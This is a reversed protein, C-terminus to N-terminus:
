RLLIMKKVDAFRKNPDSTSVAELRYFYIGSAVAANWQKQYYGPGAEEDALTAIQQGLINFVTLRVHSSFPVGYRVTTSPNFPNPFNQDLSYTQPILEDTAVATLSSGRGFLPIKLVGDYSNDYVFITDRYEQISDPTFLVQLHLTDVYTLSVPYSASSVHFFTTHTLVSDVQLVNPSSNIIGFQVSDRLVEGFDIASRTCASKPLPSSVQFLDDYTSQMCNDNAKMISVSSLRDAGLGVVFGVVTEQTDGPAMRFPGSNLLIRRDGPVFSYDEGLGDLFGTGAAPDGSLPFKSEPFPGHNYPLDQDAMTGVPAFGRLMKWWQGTTGEYGATVGNPPDSYPSGASFYAFSSMGLNRYGPKYKLDFIATDSASVVAPGALFDYGPAPPALGYREFTADVPNGNYCFGLSLVSDCGTLDDSFSGLDIDSWQCVYMSDIHFSGLTGANDIQVGGKNILRYRYFFLNGLPEDRRYAWMTKQIELGLPESSVFGLTASENLDNYVTWIVQDAPSNPDAGAVGPEDYSGTILSDVTFSASFAPPAQYGPAGNREIYPAGLAVPWEAWDTAYQDYVQQMQPDTVYAADTENVDAADQRLDATYAGGADKLNRYDRRIRYIRVEVDSPQAPVASAGAGTIYGGRTGVGYTGGGVRVTHIYAPTGKGEFGGTFAKGGFVFGDKYIVSGTGRPFYAGNDSSPSFAGLGDYRAWVALNNINLVTYTPTGATKNLSQKEKKGDKNQPDNPAAQVQVTLTPLLAAVVISLVAGSIKKKM